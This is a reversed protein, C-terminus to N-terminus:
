DKSSVELAGPAASLGRSETLSSGGVVRVSIDASHM